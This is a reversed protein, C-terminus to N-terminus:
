GRAGPPKDSQDPPVCTDSDDSLIIELYEIKDPTPTVPQEGIYVQVGTKDQLRIFIEPQRKSATTESPGNHSESSRKEAFEHTLKFYGTKETCVYGFPEFWKGKQDYLGVTLGPVGKIEKSYVWGHLVWTNKDIIPTEIKTREINVELDRVFARDSEMKRSLATVRLHKEGLKRRLRKLERKGGTLKASRVKQLEKLGSERLPDAQSINAELGSAIETFAIHEQNNQQRM